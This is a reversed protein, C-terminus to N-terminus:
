LSPPACAAAAQGTNLLTATTIIVMYEKNPVWVHVKVVVINVWHRPTWRKECM